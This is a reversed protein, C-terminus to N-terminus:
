LDSAVSWSPDVVHADANMARGRDLMFTMGTIFSSDESSLFVCVRGVEWPQGIEGLPTQREIVSRLDPQTAFRAALTDSVVTPNIVNVNIGYRAWERAATRTLARIAEKNANYAATGGKGAQGNRSGFNIIRGGRDKMSPFVAQMVFLTGKVGEQFSRDWESEAYRELPTEKAAGQANNVLIDIPGLEKEAEAVMADVDARIGIDCTLSLACSGTQRLADAVAAAAAKKRAVVVVKAGEKGFELAIAKGIGRGAGTVIAVKGNLRGM